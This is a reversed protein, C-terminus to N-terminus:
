FSRGAGGGGSGGGGFSGSSSSSFSSGSSSRERRPIRERVSKKYGCALRRCERTVEKVGEREYTPQRLTYSKVQVTRHKCKPCDEYGSFWRVARKIECLQCDDCRWVRYNISGLEEEFKQDASLYADDQEETLLRMKKKCQPCYRTLLRRRIFVVGPVSSALILAVIFIPLLAYLPSTARQSTVGPPPAAELAGAEILEAMARVGALIGGGFDGERFRPIVNADLIAGVKGDPLDGEVGYGTEVEIRRAEVVLLVLLGNDKGKKGVGWKNLLETAFEKPTRGDTRQVTVVAIEATTKKELNDILSNLEQETGDSIVGAMDSVWENRVQKPNIVEDLTEAEALAISILLLGALLLRRM